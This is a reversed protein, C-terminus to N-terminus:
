NRDADQDVKRYKQTDNAIERCLAQIDQVFYDIENKNQQDKPTDYKLRRLQMSKEYIVNVKDCM